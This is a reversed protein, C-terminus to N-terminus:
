CLMARYFNSLELKLESVSVLPIILVQVM